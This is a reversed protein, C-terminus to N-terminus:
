MESFLRQFDIQACDNGDLSISQKVKILHHEMWQQAQVTKRADLLTLLEAHDGSDCSVSKRSGYAALVLSSRYCLQEVFEALISNNSIAALEYHFQATLQISQSLWGQEDAHNEEDVMAYFHKAHKATWNNVIDPILQPEILIRSNLVEEAEQRSPRNVHAGKNAEVIVFRELALRQIVKRIGTRSIGFAEALKDEPLREGPPLKHEVIAKLLKQYIQEDKLM